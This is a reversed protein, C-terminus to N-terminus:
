FRTQLSCNFVRKRLPYVEYLQHDDGGAFGSKVSPRGYRYFRIPQDRMRMFAPLDGTEQVWANAHIFMIPAPNQDRWDMRFAQLDDPKIPRERTLLAVLARTEIDEEPAVQSDTSSTRTFAHSRSYENYISFPCDQLIELVKPEIGFYRATRQYYSQDGVLKRLGNSWEIPYQAVNGVDPFELPIVKQLVVIIM